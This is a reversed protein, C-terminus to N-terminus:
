EPGSNPQPGRGGSEIYKTLDRIEQTSLTNLLGKPMPSIPSVEYSEIDQKAVKVIEDLDFPNTAIQLISNRFENQMVRGVLTLGDTTSIIVNHYQGAIVESPKLISKLLDKRSFRSAAMTLDPGLSTGLNGLRHCRICLAETYLREGRQFDYEPDTDKALNKLDDLSWKKVFPRSYFKSIPQKSNERLSELWKAISSRETEDLTALAAERLQKIFRPLGADGQFHRAEEIRRLYSKHDEKRWGTKLHRLTFLYHLKIQDSVTQDLLQLTRPAVDLTQFTVLLECLELNVSTSRDPYLKDFYKVLKAAKPGTVIGVRFSYIDAIRLATLKDRTVLDHLPIKILRDFIPDLFKDPGVRALAM